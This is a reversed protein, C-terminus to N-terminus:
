NSGTGAYRVILPIIDGIFSFQDELGKSNVTAQMMLKGVSKLVLRMVPAEPDFMAAKVNGQEDAIGIMTLIKKICGMLQDTDSRYQDLEILISQLQKASVTLVAGPDKDITLQLVDIQEKNSM